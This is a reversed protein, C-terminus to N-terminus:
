VCLFLFLQFLFCESSEFCARKNDGVAKTPALSRCCADSLHANWCLASQMNELQQNGDSKINLNTPM